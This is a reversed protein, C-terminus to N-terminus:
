TTVLLLDTIGYERQYAGPRLNAGGELLRGVQPIWM